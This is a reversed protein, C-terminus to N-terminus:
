DIGGDVGETDISGDIGAPGDLAVDSAPADVQDTSGDIRVTEAGAEGIAVDRSDSGRDAGVDLRVPQADVADKGGDPITTSGGAGTSGGSGVIGTSGGTGLAGGAGTISGGTGKPGDIGPAAGDAKKTDVSSDKKGNDDSDGCGPTLMGVGLLMGFGITLLYTRKMSDELHSRDLRFVQRMMFPTSSIAIGFSMGRAM